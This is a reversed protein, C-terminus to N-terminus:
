TERFKLADVQLIEEVLSLKKLGYRRGNRWVGMNKPSDDIDAILLM